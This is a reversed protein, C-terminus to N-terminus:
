AVLTQEGLQKALRGRKGVIRRVRQQVLPMPYGQLPPGADGTGQCARALGVRPEVALPPERLALAFQQLAADFHGACLLAAGHTM